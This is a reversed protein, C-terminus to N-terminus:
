PLSYLTHAQFHFIYTFPLKRPIRFGFGFTNKWVYHGRRTTCDDLCKLIVLFTKLCTQCKKHVWSTMLTPNNRLKAKKQWPLHRRSLLNKNVGRKLLWISNLTLCDTLLHERVWCFKAPNVDILVSFQLDIHQLNALCDSFDKTFFSRGIFHSSTSTIKVVKRLSTM